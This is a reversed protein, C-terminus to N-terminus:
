VMNYNTVYDTLIGYCDVMSFYKPMVLISNDFLDNGPLTFLLHQSTLVFQDNFHSFYHLTDKTKSMIMLSGVDKCHIILNDKRDMLWQIDIKYLPFDHGLYLDQNHWIDVEVKYGHKIALDIYDPHNEHDSPGDLNGRHSIIIM